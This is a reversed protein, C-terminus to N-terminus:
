GKFLAGFAVGPGVPQEGPKLGGANPVSALSRPPTPALSPSQPQAQPPAQGSKWALFADLDGDKMSSLVQERKWDQVVAEYPDADSMVRQYYLPDSQFRGLAWDRAKDVTEAGYEKRAFRESTNLTQNLLRQEFQQERHAEYGEPDEYRDPAQPPAQPPTQRMQRIEQRLEQVVSVPVYGPPIQPPGPESAPPAEIQEPQPQQSAFRGREDRAVGPEAPAEPAEPEVAPTTEPEGEPPELFDLDM